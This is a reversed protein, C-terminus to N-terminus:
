TFHVPNKWLSIDSLVNHYGFQGNWFGEVSFTNAIEYPAFKVGSIELLQRGIGLCCKMDEANYEEFVLESSKELFKKSRLSFGGNGVVFGMHNWPAGIYDYELFKNNWADPNLVFGDHQCILCFETDVYSVLDKIIFKSYQEVNGIHPIKTHGGLSTLLKVKGFKCYHTCVEMANLLRKVDACDIGV